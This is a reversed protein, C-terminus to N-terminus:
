GQRTCCFAFTRYPVAVAPPQLAPESAVLARLDAEVAQQQAPPLASIFSTSLVRKVVVDEAAGRHQHSFERAQLEGFDPHPFAKRWDGKYFRPVDGEHPNVLADLRAVWPVRADRQNWVLALRGGPKLVRAIEDLAERTAFWHFAQACVVADMAVDALPMATATGQLGRVGPLAAQLRALMEAVPEIATVDAGTAVLRPTFKGTGAGLDVAAAGPGLGVEDRLWAQLEPPYDPRGQAYTDAGVAYGAAAAEHIAPPHSM